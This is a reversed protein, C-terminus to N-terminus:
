GVVDGEYWVRDGDWWIRVRSGILATGREDDKAVEWLVEGM